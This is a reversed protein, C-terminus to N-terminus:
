SLEADAAEVDRHFREHVYYREGALDVEAWVGKLAM